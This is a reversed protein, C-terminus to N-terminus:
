LVLLNEGCDTQVVNGSRQLVFFGKNLAEQKAEDDIHFVAIAGYQQYDTYYPNKEKFIRIDRELDILREKELKFRADVLVIYKEHENILTINLKGSGTKQYADFSLSCLSQTDVFYRYFFNDIEEEPERFCDTTVESIEGLMVDIYEVRELIYKIQEDTKKQAIALSAVLEKLEEDTMKSKGFDQKLQGL